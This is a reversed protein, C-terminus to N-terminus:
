QVCTRQCRLFRALFFCRTFFARIASLCSLAFAPRPFKDRPAFLSVFPPAEAGGKFYRTTRGQPFSRTNRGPVVIRGFFCHRTLVPTGNRAQARASFCFKRRRLLFVQRARTLKNVLACHGFALLAFSPLGRFLRVARSACLSPPGRKRPHRYYRPAKPRGGCDQYFADRHM